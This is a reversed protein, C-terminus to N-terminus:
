CGSQARFMKSDHCASTATQIAGLPPSSAPKALCAALNYYRLPLTASEDETVLGDSVPELDM